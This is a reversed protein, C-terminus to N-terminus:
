LDIEYDYVLGGADSISADFSQKYNGDRMGSYADIENAKELTKTNKKTTTPSELVLTDNDVCYVSYGKSKMVDISKEIIAMRRKAQSVNM